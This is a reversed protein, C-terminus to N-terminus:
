PEESEQPGAGRSGGLQDPNASSGRIGTEEFETVVVVGPVPEEIVDVIVTEVETTGPPKPRRAKTPVAKKAVARKSKAKTLRKRLTAKAISRKATKGRVSKAAKRAKGRTATKGRRAAARKKRQAM